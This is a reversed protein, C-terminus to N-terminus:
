VKIYIKRLRASATMVRGGGEVWEQGKVGGHVGEGREVRCM